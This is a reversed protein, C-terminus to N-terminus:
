WEGGRMAERLERPRNSFTDTFIYRALTLEGASGAEDWIFDMLCALSHFAVYTGEGDGGARPNSGIEVLDLCYSCRIEQDGM